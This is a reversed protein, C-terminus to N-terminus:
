QLLKPFYVRAMNYTQELSLKSYVHATLRKWKLLFLLHCKSVQCPRRLCNRVYQKGTCFSICVPKDRIHKDHWIYRVGPFHVHLHPFRSAENLRCCLKLLCQMGKAKWHEWFCPFAGLIFLCKMSLKWNPWPSSWVRIYVTQSRTIYM